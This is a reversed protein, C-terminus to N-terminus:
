SPFSLSSITDAHCEHTISKTDLTPRHVTTQERHCEVSILYVTESHCHPTEQICMSTALWLNHHNFITHPMENYM